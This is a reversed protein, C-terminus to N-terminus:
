VKLALLKIETMEEVAYRIGERGFGSMKIGGYPMNDVRYTPIDNVIVGGVDLKEYAHLIRGMDRTFVGAQLGYLGSNVERVAEEFDSYPELSVVPAFVEEGCVRMSPKTNTLITPEFYNGKRKGGSLIQAGDAVAEKVWAETREAAAEEIMPGIETFEDLPDGFKLRGCNELYMDKFKEFISEKVFIRQVSICIQGAYSFAGVTCRKAAFEIDADDHVIVGANGGLELTIKRPGALKKMMWGVKASGTFTINKIREDELMKQTDENTCPIVNVGGAPWGAETIIEGLLLATLPTKPAPKVIIPNGCAMAPAVKHAVLNLPFNFPTIGLVTGVPFRRIIAFRGESGPAIDLPMVTGELRKAEEAALQFTVQARKVEGRADKIPKGSEITITRALEEGRAKLGEVVKLIIESKKYAPLSKLVEFAASSSALAEEIENEGAVYTIGAISKDYPNVVRLEAQTALWKGNILIPHKKEM